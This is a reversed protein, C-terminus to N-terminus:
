SFYRVVKCATQLKKRPISNSEMFQSLNLIENVNNERDWGLRVLALFIYNYCLRKTAPYMHKYNRYMPNLSLNTSDMLINSNKVLLNFDVRGENPGLVKKWTEEYFGPYKLSDTEARRIFADITTSTLKVGEMTYLAIGKENLLYIQSATFDGRQNLYIYM